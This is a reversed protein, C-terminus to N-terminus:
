QEELLPHGLTASKEFRQEQSAEATGHFSSSARDSFQEAFFRVDWVFLFLVVRFFLFWGLDAPRRQSGAFEFVEGVRLKCRQTTAEFQELLAASVIRLEFCQDAIKAAGMRSDRAAPEIQTADQERLIVVGDAPDTIFHCFARLECM